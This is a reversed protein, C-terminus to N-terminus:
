LGKSDFVFPYSVVADEGNSNPFKWSKVASIVCVQLLLSNVTTSKLTVDGVDGSKLITWELDIRGSLQSDENLASEFCSAIDKLHGNIIRAVDERGIGGKVVAIGDPGMDKAYVGAVNSM